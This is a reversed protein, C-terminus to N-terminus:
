KDTDKDTEENGDKDGFDMDIEPEPADGTLTTYTGEPDNKLIDRQEEPAIVGAAIYTQAVQANTLDIQAKEQKTPEDIPNFVVDLDIVEGGDSKTMCVNHMQIIPTFDNQQIDVLTQKYDKEEYEGTANFGKPQTKLLRVAPMMAIAAVLQYQTMILADFDGLSTDIQQVTDEPHKVYVGFNDRLQTVSQIAKIAEQPNAIYNEINADVVLMRKTMALLPAENATKEAAYVREYIQQTLPIGGFYYVPKLIDAVQANILKVCWSRHIKQGNAVRYWTPEFYHLSAPNTAADSDLLPSLWYPEIVKMGKYTGKKIGDPNFPNEYDAGDIVPICLSYGYVKKQIEMEVCVDKIHYKKDSEQKLDLLKEEDAEKKNKSYTLKYDPAIADKAPVTCARDIFTDQKLLSCAQWGIFTQGALFQWMKDPIDPTFNTVTDIGDTAVMQLKGRVRKEKMVKIDNLTRPFLSKFVADKDIDPMLHESLKSMYEAYTMKPLQEEKQPEVKKVSHSFLNKIKEKLM